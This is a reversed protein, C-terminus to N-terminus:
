SKSSTSKKATSKKATSKAKSTKAKPKKKAKDDSSKEDADAKAKAKTSKKEKKPEDILKSENLLWDLTKEELLRDKLEAIADDNSFYGRVAEVTQGRMDALEQYKANLDEDDVTIKQKESVWELVLGAKTAFEARVRLDALQAESFNISRPDNGKYAEQLRLENLLMELNQEIMGDPVEFDNADIIVQLLNARAQNRAFSDKGKAIEDSLSEKMHKIGDYGFEKALKATLKPIENAQISQINVTVDATKGAIAETRCDDPFTVSETKEDGTKMGLLMAEVGPYYPDSETRIMTGPEKAIEEDGSKASLEVMVLDGTEVPRKVEALKSKQELQANVRIDIEEKSVEVKPYVVELKKYKKVDIEPKVEVTITFEFDAKAQLDNTSELSPRSVPHLSHESIANTYSKQILSSAVDQRVQPGFRMELVKRPAKGARFGRLRAKSGVQKFATDLEGRVDAAPITFQLKKQCSSVSSVDVKM